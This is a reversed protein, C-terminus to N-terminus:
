KSNIPIFWWYLSKPSNIKFGSNKYLTVAPQNQQDVKLEIKKYNTRVKEFFRNLLKKAFGKRLKTKDTALTIIECTQSQTSEFHLAAVPVTNEHVVCVKNQSYLYKLHELSYTKLTSLINAIKTFDTQEPKAKFTSDTSTTLDKEMILYKKLQAYPFLKKLLENSESDKEPIEFRIEASKVLSNQELFYRVLKELYESYQESQKVYLDMLYLNKEIPFCRIFGQANGSAELFFWSHHPAEEFYDIEDQINLEGEFTSNFLPALVKLDTKEIKKIEIM